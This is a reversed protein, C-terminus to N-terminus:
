SNPEGLALALMYEGIRRWKVPIRRVNGGTIVLGSLEGEGRCLYDFSEICLHNQIDTGPVGALKFLAEKACWFITLIPLRDRGSALSLEPPTLFRDAVRLIRERIRELDIGCAGTYSIVAAAHDGSHSFSVPFPPSISIPRGYDDYRISVRPDNSLVRLAMRCGLWQLRRSDNRIGSLLRMDGPLLELGSLLWEEPETCHWVGVDARDPVSERFILPM